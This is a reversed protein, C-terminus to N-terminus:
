NCQNDKDHDIYNEDNLYWFSLYMVPAMIILFTVWHRAEYSWTSIDFSINHFAGILYSLMPLIVLIIYNPPIKTRNLM